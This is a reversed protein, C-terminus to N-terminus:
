SLFLRVQKTLGGTGAGVEAVSFGAQRQNECAIDVLRALHRGGFGSVFPDGAYLQGHEPHTM